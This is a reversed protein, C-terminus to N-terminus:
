TDLPIAVSSINFTPVIYIIISDPPVIVHLLLLLCLKEELNALMQITGLQTNHYSVMIHKALATIKATCCVYTYTDIYTYAVRIYSGLLYSLKTIAVQAMKNLTLSGFKWNHNNVVMLKALCKHWFSQLQLLSAWVRHHTLIHVYSCIRIYKIIYM